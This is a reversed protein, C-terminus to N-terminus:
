WACLGGDVIINQGTIYKSWDSALFLVPGVIDSPSAMRGMPVRAKYRDVFKPDQYNFVGGPSVCNIRVNNKAYRVALCKSLAIIGGKATAYGVPMTMDTGEYISYDPAIVGYVSAINIISGGGNKAMNEAVAETGYLFGKLHKEWKTPYISNVFIDVKQNEFYIDVKREQTLDLFIDTDLCIDISRIEAGACSLTKVIEKGILGNGGAVIATKGKLSILKIEKRKLGFAVFLQAM